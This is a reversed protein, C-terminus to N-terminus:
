SHTARGASSSPGVLVKLSVRAMKARAQDVRPLPCPIRPVAASDAPPEPVGLGAHGKLDVCAGDLCPVPVQRPKQVRVDQSGIRNLGSVREAGHGSLCLKWIIQHGAGKVRGGDMEITSAQPRGVLVGADLPPIRYIHYIRQDRRTASVLHRRVATVQEM